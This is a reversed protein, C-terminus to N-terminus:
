RMRLGSQEQGYSVGPSGKISSRMNRAIFGALKGPADYIADAQKKKNKFISDQWRSKLHDMVGKKMKNMGAMRPDPKQVKPYKGGAYATDTGGKGTDQKEDQRNNFRNKDGAEIKKQNPANKIGQAWKGKEVQSTKKAIEGKAKSVLAGGAKSALKKAKEAAIQKAKNIILEKPSKAIASTPLEKDKGVAPASGRKALAGGKEPKVGRLKDAKEAAGPNKKKWDNFQDDSMARFKDGADESIFMSFTKM